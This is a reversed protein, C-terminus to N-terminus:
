FMATPMEADKEKGPLGDAPYTLKTEIKKLQNNFAATQRQLKTIQMILKSELSKSADRIEGIRKKVARKEDGKLQRAQNALADTESKVAAAEADNQLADIQAELAQKQVKLDEKQSELKKKEDPQVKWYFIRKILYNNEEVWQEYPIEGEPFIIQTEVAKLEREISSIQIQLEKIQKNKLELDNLGTYFGYRQEDIKRHLDATKVNNQLENLRVELKKKQTSM